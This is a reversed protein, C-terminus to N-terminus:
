NKQLIYLHGPINGREDKRVVIEKALLVSFKYDYALDKIYGSSQAYRGTARLIYDGEQPTASETSFAFLAGQHACRAVAGFVENLDGIYVFVDAAMIVDFMTQTQALYRCLNMAVLDDYVGHQSAKKLMKRSLDVGVMHAKYDTMQLGCAGTGCGLDLVQWTGQKAKPAMVAPIRAGLMAPVQYALAALHHDFDHAYADFLDAVYADPATPTTEGKLGAMMHRATPQRPNQQLVKQYIQCAERECQRAMEIAGANLLFRENDPDLALVQHYIDAAQEIQGSDRLTHAYNTLVDTNNPLLPLAKTFCSLAKQKDGKDLYVLAMNAHAQGFDPKHTLAIQFTTLAAERQRMHRQLLGLTNLYHPNEPAFKSAKELYPLAAELKHQQYLIVGKLHLAEPNEPQKKLVDDCTARAADPQSQELCQYIKEFETAKSELVM